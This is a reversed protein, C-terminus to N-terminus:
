FTSSYQNGPITTVLNLSPTKDVPAVMLLKGAETDYLSYSSRLESQLTAGDQSAGIALVGLYRAPLPLLSVAPQKYPSKPDNVVNGAAAVTIVGANRAADVSAQFLPMPEDTVGTTQFSMNAIITYGYNQRLWTLYDTAEKARQQTWIGDFIDEVIRLGILRVGVQSQWGGAIGALGIGNYTRAAIVGAARTGHTLASEQPNNDNDVFDWGRIDDIKGNGDDDVGNGAIENPNIWINDSLDVHNYGLGTDMIGILITSSPKTVDWAKSMQIKQLSWQGTWLPDNRTGALIRYHNLTVIKIDPCASLTSQIRALPFVLPFEIRYCGDTEANVHSLKRSRIVPYQQFAAQLQPSGNIVQGNSFSVVEAQRVQLLIVGPEYNEQAFIGALPIVIILLFLKRRM